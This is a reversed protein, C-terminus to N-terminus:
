ELILEVQPHLREFNRISKAQWSMNKNGIIRIPKVRKRMQVVFLSLSSIGSSNLYRLDKLDLVVAGESEDAAKMLLSYIEQYESRGQLRLTGSFSVAHETEDYEITYNPAEIRM